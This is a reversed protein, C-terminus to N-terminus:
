RSDGADIAEGTHYNLVRGGPPLKCLVHFSGAFGVYQPPISFFLAAPTTSYTSRSFAGILNGTSGLSYFTCTIRSARSGQVTVSVDLPAAPVRPSDRIIPCAVAGTAAGPAAGPVPQCEIGSHGKYTWSDADSTGALAILALGALPIRLHKRQM